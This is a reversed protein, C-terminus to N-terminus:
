HCNYKFMIYLLGVLALFITAAMIISLTKFEKDQEEM